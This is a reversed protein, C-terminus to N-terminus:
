SQHPQFSEISPVANQAANFRRWAEFATHQDTELPPEALILHSCDAKGRVRLMPKVQHSRFQDTTFRVFFGVRPEDSTNPRSEHLLSVHHLSMEGPQLAVDLAEAENIVTAAQGGRGIMNVDSRDNAHNLRRKHSGPIVRMCGNASNSQTLAIWASVSPAQPLGSYVGDQHWAVYTSDRPPKYFILSGFVLIDGGIIDQVIDLLAKHTVLRYAWEFFLHLGDMRRQLGSNKIVAEFGNKFYATEENSFVKIPFLTGQREYQTLQRRSLKNNM